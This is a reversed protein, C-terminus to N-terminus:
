DRSTSRKSAVSTPLSGALRVRTLIAPRPRGLALPKGYKVRPQEVHEAVTKLFEGRPAGIADAMEILESLRRDPRQTWYWRRLRTWSLRRYVERLPTRTSIWRLLAIQWPPCDSNLVSPASETREQWSSATVRV